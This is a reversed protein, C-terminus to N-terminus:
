IEYYKLITNKNLYEDWSAYKKIAKMQQSTAWNPAFYFANKFDEKPAFEDSMRFGTGCEKCPKHVSSFTIGSFYESASGINKGDTFFVQKIPGRSEFTWVRFGKEKIFQVTESLADNAFNREM